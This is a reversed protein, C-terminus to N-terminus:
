PFLKESEVGYKAVLKMYGAATPRIENQWDNSRRMADPLAATSTNTIDVVHFNSLTINQILL